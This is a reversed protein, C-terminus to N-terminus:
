TVELFHAAYYSVDPSPGNTEGNSRDTGQIGAPLLDAVRDLHDFQVENEILVQLEPSIGYRRAFLKRTDATPSFKPIEIVDRPRMHFGDEVWRPVVGETKELAKRAMAGVIPCHPTEYCSSLAKARLLQKLVHEGANICSLTWGFGQFFKFPDRVIQGSDSFVLGCFSAESPSQFKEIKIKFGLAEYEEVRLEHRSMFLGDDGEVYGVINGEGAIFLALMMNTFGNGLSTCMDGSMRRGRSRIRIGTRTRMINNGSITRCIYDMTSDGPFCHRYLACECVQMIESSISSEFATYDTARCKWDTYRTLRAILAPREPVPVHKIFSIPLDMDYLVAEISKFYRGSVVKFDDVRSNIMRPRKFKPYFESKVFSDVHSSRKKSPLGGHLKLYAERLQQKRWEPYPESELWEAFSLLRIKKLQADHDELWKQVFSSFRQLQHHQIVPLDRLLRGSFAELVTAQDYNDYCIPAYGRIAGWTLRRYMRRRSKRVGSLRLVAKGMLKSKVEPFPVEGYRVGTAYVHRETTWPNPM